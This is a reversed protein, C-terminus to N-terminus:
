PPPFDIMRQGLSRLDKESEAMKVVACCQRVTDRLELEESEEFLPMGKSARELVMSWMQVCGLITLQFLVCRAAGGCWSMGARGKMGQSWAVMLRMLVSVVCGPIKM